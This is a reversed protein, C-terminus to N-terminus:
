QASSGATSSEGDAAESSQTEESQADTASEAEAAEQAAYVQLYNLRNKPDKVEYDATIEELYDSMIENVLTSKVNLMWEPEDTGVFYLVYTYDEDEPSLVVTDGYARSSDQLWETLEEPVTETVLGDYFGGEATTLEDSNYKDAIEAFSDETAAGSKWEELVAEGNDGELIIARVDVTPTENLYRDEFSLVYYLYNTNDEIITTDGAKRESDFLWDRIKSTIDSRQKNEQLSGETAITKLAGEAESKAVKMAFEIEAESPEYAESASSDTSATGESTGEAPKEEVPDALDTPETPLEAYIVSIRYDVSDYTDKNEEYYARAEEDGPMKEEAVLNYYASAKLGEKICKKLRSTTAYTGFNERVFDNVSMNAEEASERLSAMYEEYDGSADYTFGAKEAEALLARNQIIGDVAMEEFFDKFSLDESYMQTSLDRSLDVGLYSMYTGYQNVYGNMTTNYYYDFEVRSVKEGAVEIYTGNVTLWSHIPFSVVFCLLAVVLVVGIITSIRQDRKAKAKEAERRQMKLDYKTVAKKEETNQVEKKSM